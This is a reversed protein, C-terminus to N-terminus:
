FGFMPLTLFGQLFLANTIDILFAGVIPIILFATPSPGYRNTIAQMNAIATPTAGLALGCHGASIVAADYDAGMVRYTLFTIYFAAIVTQIALISLIPLALSVLEWLRLSILAMSLFLSLSVGGILSVTDDDVQRLGSLTLGNRVLVGTFLTWVFAPLTIVDNQMAVSLWSGVVVCFAVLLLAEIFAQPSLRSVESAPAPGPGAHAQGTAGAGASGTLGHRRILRQTVPGGLLGGLVLGFTACAMALEMAGQLNDVDVFTGAYAAGTGHGGMLTISGTLLGVLPHLDMAWAAALGAANQLVLMGALLAWFLLLKRGGKLLTRVDAGLGVTAFFALMLPAQLALDFSVQVDAGFRLATVLGAAVLGGVVPEPISYRQLFGVRAILARGVLLVVIAAVLTTMVDLDFQM